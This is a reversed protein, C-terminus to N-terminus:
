IDLNKVYQANEEIFLKRASVEDGMLEEFVQSALMADHIQVQYMKRVAPDM